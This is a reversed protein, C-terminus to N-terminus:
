KFVSSIARWVRSSLGDAPPKNDGPASPLHGELEESFDMRYLDPLHTQALDDHCSGVRFGQEEQHDLHLELDVPIAAIMDHATYRVCTPSHGTKELLLYRGNEVVRGVM